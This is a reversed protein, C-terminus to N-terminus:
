KTICLYFYSTMCLQLSIILFYRTHIALTAVAKGFSKEYATREKLSKSGCIEFDVLYGFDTNLFWVKYRFRIPKERIFQKCGHRGYYKIMAADFCLHEHPIFYKLFKTKLLEIMPRLKYPKYNMNITTNDEM